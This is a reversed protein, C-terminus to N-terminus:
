SDRFGSAVQTLWREIEDLHQRVRDGVPFVPGDSLSPSFSQRSEADIQFLSVAAEIGCIANALDVLAGSVFRGSVPDSGSPKRARWRRHFEMAQRRWTEGHFGFPEPSELEGSFRWKSALRSLETLDRSFENWVNDSRDPLQPGGNM